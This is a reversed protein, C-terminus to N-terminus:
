PTVPLTYMRDTVATPAEMWPPAAKVSPMCVQQATGIQYSSLCGKRAATVAPVAM